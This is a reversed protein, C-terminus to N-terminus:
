VDVGLYSTSQSHIHPPLTLPFELTFRINGRLLVRLVHDPAYPNPDGKLHRTILHLAVAGRLCGMLKKVFAEGVSTLVLWDYRRDM